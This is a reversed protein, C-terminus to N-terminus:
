KYNGLHLSLIRDALVSNYFKHEAQFFSYNYKKVVDQIFSSPPTFGRKNAYLIYNPVIGALSEKLLHKPFGKKYKISLPLSDVFEVLKFDLLPSRVEISNGMGLRDSLYLYAM